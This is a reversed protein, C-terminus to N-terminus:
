GPPIQQVIRFGQGQATAVKVGDVFVDVSGYSGGVVCSPWPTAEGQCRYAVARNSYWLRRAADADAVDLVGGTSLIRWEKANQDRGCADNTAAPDMPVTYYLLARGDPSWEVPVIDMEPEVARAIEHDYTQIAIRHRAIDLGSCTYVDSSLHTLGSPSVPFFEGDSTVTATGDFMITAIGGPADSQTQGSVVIGADDARWRVVEGYGRLDALQPDTQLMSFQDASTAVSRVHFATGEVFSVQCGDTLPPPTQQARECGNPTHTSYAVRKGDPSAALGFAWTGDGDSRWIETANSGDLDYRVIRDSLNAVLKDGAAVVQAPQDSVGDGIDFQHAVRKAAADYVTVTWRIHQGPQAGAALTTFIVQEPHAAGIRVASSDSGAGRTRVVGWALLAIGAALAVAVVGAVASTAANWKVKHLLAFPALAPTWGRRAPAPEPRWAAAEYRSGVGLRALIESVHFKVGDPSIGLREAIEENTLGHQLERLVDQQRPTLVDPYRPRGRTKM